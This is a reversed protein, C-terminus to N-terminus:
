SVLPRVVASTRMAKRTRSRTILMRGSPAPSRSRSPHPKPKLWQPNPLQSKTVIQMKLPQRSHEPANVQMPAVFQPPHVNFTVHPGLEHPANVHPPQM